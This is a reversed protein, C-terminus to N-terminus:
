ATVGHLDQRASLLIRFLFPEIDDLCRSSLRLHTLSQTLSLHARSDIGLFKNLTLEAVLFNVNILANEHAKDLLHAILFRRIEVLIDHILSEIHVGHNLAIQLHLLM